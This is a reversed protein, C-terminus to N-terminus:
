QDNISKFQNKWKNINEWNMKIKTPAEAQIWAEVASLESRDMVNLGTDLGIERARNDVALILSRKKKQLARIGGHLRTGIFEISSENSLVEDYADLSPGIISLGETGLTKLYTLDGAGQPWFLVQSYNKKLLAILAKDNEVSKNYDTLTFIVTSAKAQPIAACHESTLQWMTPCGTNIVNIIGISNLKKKTYEDRVSHIKGSSLVMNLVARTYIDPRNQYQWWGVGMLTVDRLFFAQLINIQWQKYRLMRSSLLNTGGVIRHRARRSHGISIAGIKEQTPINIFQELPFIFSAERRVADVIIEDGLNTSAISPNFVAITM